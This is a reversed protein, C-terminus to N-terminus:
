GAAATAGALMVALDRCLQAAAAAAAGSLPDLGFFGHVLGPFERLVVPVGAARLASAYAVGEDRLPDFEAVGIVAPAVGALNGALLPSVRPDAAASQDPLYQEAFWVMDDATLFYGQANDVRSPYDGLLDVAPYLLLQAALRPGDARCALAVAAALNGGASDGAIALRDPDGGLEALRRGCWRTAALADDYARPFPAEPALRYAVSVVVAGAQACVLRAHDDHTDLDGIVWGGGHLFVVTPLRDGERDLPRYVRAPLEGDAGDVTTEEVSAVAALHSSQRVGLTLQRFGTRAAQATGASLPPRQLSELLQLMGAIQADVPM